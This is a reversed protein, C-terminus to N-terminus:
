CTLSANSLRCTIPKFISTRHLVDPARSPLHCLARTQPAFAVLTGNTIAANKSCTQEFQALADPATDPRLRSRPSPHLRHKTVARAERVVWAGCCKWCLRMRLRSHRHEVRSIAESARDLDERRRSQPSHLTLASVDREDRLPCRTSRASM